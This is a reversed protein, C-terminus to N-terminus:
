DLFQAINVNKRTFTTRMGYYIYTQYLWEIVIIFFYKFSVM